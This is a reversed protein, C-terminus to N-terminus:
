LPVPLRTPLPRLHYPMAPERCAWSAGSAFGVTTDLLSPKSIGSGHRSLLEQGLLHGTREGPQLLPGVRPFPSTRPRTVGGLRGVGTARASKMWTLDPHLAEGESRWVNGLCGRSSPCSPATEPSGLPLPSALSHFCPSPQPHLLFFTPDQGQPQFPFLPLDRAKCFTQLVTPLVSTRAM